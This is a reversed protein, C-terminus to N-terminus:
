TPSFLPTEIMSTENCFSVESAGKTGLREHPDETLLRSTPLVEFNICHLKKALLCVKTLDSFPGASYSLGKAPPM